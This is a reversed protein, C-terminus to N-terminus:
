SRRNKRTKRKSQSRTNRKKGGRMSVGGMAAILGDVDEDNVDMSINALEDLASTLASMNFGVGRAPIKKDIFVKKIYTKGRRTAPAGTPVFGMPIEDGDKIKRIEIRFPM